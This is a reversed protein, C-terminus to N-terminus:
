RLKRYFSACALATVIISCISVWVGTELGLPHYAFRITHVGKPVWVARSNINAPYIPTDKGDVTAKWGVYAADALVVLGDGSLTAQLDVETPEDKTIVVQGTGKMDVSPITQEVLVTRRPDFDPSALAAIQREPTRVMITDFVVRARPLAGPNEYIRYKPYQASQFIQKINKGSVELPSLIYPVSEMDFAKKASDGITVQNDSVPIDANWADRVTQM